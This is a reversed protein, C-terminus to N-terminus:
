PSTCSYGSPVRGDAGPRSAQFGFATSAGPAIPGGNYAANRATATQGSGSMVVNWSGAVTHGPPLTFTVTWGNLTATGTNTVTVQIVYGTAWESATAPTAM